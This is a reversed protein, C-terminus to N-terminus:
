RNVVFGFRALVAQAKPQQLFGYFREAAPTPKKILIMRQKLPQHMNEAIVVYRGHTSLPPTLVLSLAILGAQANGQSVFSAAQSVNEGLVLKPQALGWVGATQLAQMARHGYPAHEPNAIALKKITGDQLGQKLGILQEDLKVKSGNPVFLAIRGTAYLLGADKSIGAKFLKDTLSEDASLFVEFPAGQLMQTSLNGSSGFVLKVAQGSDQRFLEAVEELAFKLDSAAAVIPQAAAPTMAAGIVWVLTGLFRKVWVLPRAMNPMELFM